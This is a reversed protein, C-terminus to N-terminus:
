AADPNLWIPNTYAAYSTNGTRSTAEVRFYVPGSIPPPATIIHVNRPDHFDSTKHFVLKKEIRKSLDGIYLSVTDIDGFEDTSRGTIDIDVKKGAM